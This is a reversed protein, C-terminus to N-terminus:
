GRPITKTLKSKASSILNLYQFHIDATEKNMIKGANKEILSESWNDLMKIKLKDKIRNDSLLDSILKEVSM